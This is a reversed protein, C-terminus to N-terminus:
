AASGDRRLALIEERSQLSQLAKVTARVVNLPNTSGMSKALVDRIGALELVARMGGGAIVGTGPSAPRMFVKAGSFRSIAEHPITRDKMTVKFMGRRALETGKRIADSVENAKGLAFGVRGERDGVVVLASFSFRRGGKVVKSSRNIHVVREDFGSKGASNSDKDRM